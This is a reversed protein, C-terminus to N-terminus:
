RPGILRFTTWATLLKHFKWLIGVYNSLNWCLQVSEDQVTNWRLLVNELATPCIGICNSLIIDSLKQGRSAESDLPGILWFTTRKLRPSQLIRITNWHLQVHGLVTPRNSMNWLNWRLRVYGAFDSLNWRLQVSQVSEDLITNFQDSDDQITKIKFRDSDNQIPWDNHVTWFRKSDTM